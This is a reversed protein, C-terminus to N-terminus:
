NIEIDKSHLKFKLTSKGWPPTKYSFNGNIDPEIGFGGSVIAWVPTASWAQLLGGRGFPPSYYEVPLYWKNSLSYEWSRLLAYKWEPDSRSLLIKAIIGDWYPWDSGNHYRYPFASKFKLDEKYKYFPWVSLIGWDGFRQEDNNKTFLYRKLTDIFTEDNDPIDYLLTVVTDINIHDEIKGIKENIYDAFHDAKWIEDNMFRKITKYGEIYKASTNQDISEFIKSASILSGAYLSLDYTVFGSRVVNDSWDKVDEDKFFIWKDQEFKDLIVRIKKLIDETLIERDGTWRLYDYVLLVFFYPSDWHDSWWDQPRRQFQRVKPDLNAFKRSLEFEEKSAFVIGSPANGNEDIGDSLVQIQDKVISPKFPLLAKSTWFSDRYYTRAPLAYSPGAYLVSFDNEIGIKHNSIATHLSFVFLSNILEDESNFINSLYELYKGHSEKIKSASPRKDGFYFLIWAEDSPNIDFALIDGSRRVNFKAGEVVISIRKSKGKIIIENKNQHVEYKEISSLIKEVVPIRLQKEFLVKLKMKIQGKVSVALAPETSLIVSLKKDFTISNPYYVAEEFKDSFSIWDIYKGNDSGFIGKISSYEFKVTLYENSLYFDKIVDSEISCKSLKM